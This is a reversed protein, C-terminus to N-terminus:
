DGGDSKFDESPSTDDTGERERREKECAPCVDSTSMGFGQMGCCHRKEMEEIGQQLRRILNKREENSINGMEIVGDVNLNRGLGCITNQMFVHNRMKKNNVDMMHGNLLKSIM